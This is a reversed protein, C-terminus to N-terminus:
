EKYKKLKRMSRAFISSHLYCLPESNSDTINIGANTLIRIATHLCEHSLTAINNVNNINFEPMWITEFAIPNGKKDNYSASEAGNNSQEGIDCDHKEKMYKRYEDYESFMFLITYGYVKEKIKFKKM